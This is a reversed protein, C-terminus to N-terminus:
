SSSRGSPLLIPQARRTQDSLAVQPLCSDSSEITHRKLPREHRHSGAGRKRAVGIERHEYLIGARQDVNM